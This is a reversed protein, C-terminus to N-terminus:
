DVTNRLTGIGEIWCEVVDGAKLWRFPRFGMGVGAPTGTSIVDGPVLTLGKSFDSVIETIGFILESTVSEQRLEGNVTCRIGLAPPYVFEDATVVVPGMACGGDLSKGKFWQDHKKQLDRATIDNLITYGFIYEPVSGPDIDHGTKGIIVALEAEYDLMSTVGSHIPVSETSGRVRDVMKSFYVPATPIGSTQGGLAAAEAVHDRYNKGLCIINRRPYTIPAVLGVGALPLGVGPFVSITQLRSGVDSWQEILEIMTGPADVGLLQKLPIVWSQDQTVLGVQEQGLYSFTALRM